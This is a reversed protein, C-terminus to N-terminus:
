WVDLRNITPQIVYLSADLKQQNCISEIRSKLAQVDYSQSFGGENESTLSILKSLVKCAATAISREDGSEYPESPELEVDVLCKELLGKPISYPYCDSILAEINTM